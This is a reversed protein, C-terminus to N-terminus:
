LVVPKGQGGWDLVELRVGQDVTVFRIAHPSPDPWPVSPQAWLAAPLVMTLIAGWLHSGRLMSNKRRMFFYAASNTLTGDNKCLATGRSISALLGPLTLGYTVM